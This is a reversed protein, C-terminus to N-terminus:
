RLAPCAWFNRLRSVHAFHGIAWTGFCLLQLDWCLEALLAGGAVSSLKPSSPKSPPLAPSIIRAGSTPMAQQRLQEVDRHLFNAYQEYAAHLARARNELGRVEIQAQEAGNRGGAEAGARPSKFSELAEDAASSQKRADEFRSEVWAIAKQVAEYKTQRRDQIFSNAIANAIDSARTPTGGKFVLEIVHTKGLRRVDLSKDLTELAAAGQAQVDLHTRGLLWGLLGLSRSFQPDEELKLQQVVPLLVKASRIVEIQSDIDNSDPPPPTVMNQQPLNIEQRSLDAEVMVRATYQKAALLTYLVGLTLVVVVSSTIVRWRRRLFRISSNVADMITIDNPSVQRRSTGIMTELM